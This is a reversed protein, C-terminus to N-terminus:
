EGRAKKIAATMQACLPSQNNILPLAAELAALLEPAAAILRADHERRDPGSGIRAVTITKGRPSKAVVEEAYHGTPAENREWPGPTHKATDHESASM